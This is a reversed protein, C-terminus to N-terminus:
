PKLYEELAGEGGVLWEFMVTAVIRDIGAGPASSALLMAAVLFLYGAYTTPGIGRFSVVPAAVNAQDVPRGDIPADDVTAPEEERGDGSAAPGSGVFLDDVQGVQFLKNSKSGPQEPVGDFDVRKVRDGLGSAVYGVFEVDTTNQHKALLTDEADYFRTLSNTHWPRMVGVHSVPQSFILEFRSQGDPAFRSQAGTYEGKIVGMLRHNAPETVYGYPLVVVPVGKPARKKPLPIRTETTRLRITISGGPGDLKLKKLPGTPVGEFDEFMIAGDRALAKFTEHAEPGYILGRGIGSVEDAARAPVTRPGVSTALLALITAGMLTTRLTRM